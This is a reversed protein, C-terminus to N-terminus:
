LFFTFVLKYFSRYAIRFLPFFLYMFEESALFSMNVTGEALLLSEGQYVMALWAGEDCPM